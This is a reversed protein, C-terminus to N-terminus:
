KEICKPVTYLYIKKKIIKSQQQQQEANYTIRRSRSNTNNKRM